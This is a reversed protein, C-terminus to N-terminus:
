VGRGASSSSGRTRASSLAGGGGRRTTPRAGPRFSSATRSSRSGTHRRSRSASSTTGCRTASLSSRERRRTGAAREILRFLHEWRRSFYGSLVHGHYTHVIARPRRRGAALAALRGTAGAKATHTHLVDPRRERILRRLALIAAPDARLSIERQLVPLKLVEVGLEDAVYEMSEEGAALTGAVVICRTDRAAVARARAAPRAAGRRRRQAPRDRPRDLPEPRRTRPAPSRPRPAGAVGLALWFIAALPSGGFLAAGALAGGLSALWALPVYPQEAWRGSAALRRGARWSRRVRARLLALFRAAGVLGLEFLVQDYTQQPIFTEDERPFYHAPQDSFRERADPLYGAYDSPPLEGEWGTGLVPNDLFVRGGIYVFILRQSWSAAYQGADRAAPRVVVAPLGPRRGPHRVHRGDRRACVVLAVVAAHRRFERRTLALGVLAATALYLGLVSALSAGVVIGLAGVGIAALALRPPRGDRAFVHALGLVLVMTALAALDHEGMFSGQRKGANAVFQVLGWGVAVACFGVLFTTLLGFRERTDVFAIAGLALVALEALKGAAAVADAGNPIASAVLLLAFGAIAAALWPSPVARRRWLRLSALVATVVLAVDVPGISLDTGGAGLTASPLDAARFLSIGITALFVAFSLDTASQRTPRPLLSPM